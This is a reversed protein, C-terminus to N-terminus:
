EIITGTGLYVWNQGLLDGRWVRSTTSAPQSVDTANYPGVNGATGSKVRTEVWQYVADRYLNLQYSYPSNKASLIAQFVKLEIKTKDGSQSIRYYANQTTGDTLSDGPVVWMDGANGSILAPNSSTQPSSPCCTGYGVGLTVVANTSIYLNSSTQNNSYYTPITIPNNWYGDDSATVGGTLLTYGATSDTWALTNLSDYRWVDQYSTWYNNANLYNKAQTGGTFSQDFLNNVLDVFSNETLLNSRWFGVFAPVNGPLGNHTGSSDEHAIVYGLDENPTSYFVVGNNAGVVGYDQPTTGVYLNGFKTTGPITGGGTKYAVPTITAM